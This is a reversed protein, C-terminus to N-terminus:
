APLSDAVMRVDAALNYGVKEAHTESDLRFRLRLKPNAYIARAADPISLGELVKEMLLGAMTNGLKEKLLALRPGQAQRHALADEVTEVRTSVSEQLLADLRSGAGSERLYNDQVLDDVYVVQPKDPRRSDPWGAAERLMRQAWRGVQVDCYHGLSPCRRSDWRDVARGLELSMETVLDDPGLLTQAKGLWSQECFWQARAFLIPYAAALAGDLSLEGNRLSHLSAEVAVLSSKGM